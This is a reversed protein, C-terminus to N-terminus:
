RPPWPNPHFAFDIPSGYEAGCATVLVKALPQHVIAHRIGHGAEFPDRHGRRLGYVKVRWAVLVPEFHFRRAKVAGIELFEHDKFVDALVPVLIPTKTGHAFFQKGMYVGTGMRADKNQTATCSLRSNQAIFQFKGFVQVLPTTKAYEIGRFGVNRRNHRGARSGPGHHPYFATAEHM